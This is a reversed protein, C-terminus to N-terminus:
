PWLIRSGLKSGCTEILVNGGTRRLILAILASVLNPWVKDVVMKKDLKDAFEPLAELLAM